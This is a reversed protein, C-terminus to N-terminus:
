GETKWNEGCSPCFIYDKEGYKMVLKTSEKKIVRKSISNMDDVNIHMGIVVYGILKNGCRLCNM